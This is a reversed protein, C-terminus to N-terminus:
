VTIRQSEMRRDVNSATNKWVQFFLKSHDSCGHPLRIYKVPSIFMRESGVFGHPLGMYKDDVTFPSAMMM